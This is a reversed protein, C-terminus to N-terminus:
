HHYIYTDDYYIEVFSSIVIYNLSYVVIKHTLFGCLKTHEILYCKKNYKLDDAVM